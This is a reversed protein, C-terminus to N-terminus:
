QDEILLRANVTPSGASSLPFRAGMEGQSPVEIEVSLTRDLLQEADLRFDINVLVSGPTSSRITFTRGALVNGSVNEFSMAERELATDQYAIGLDLSEASSTKFPELGNLPAPGDLWTQDGTVTSKFGKLTTAGVAEQWRWWLRDLNCHFLWFHPDFAAVEQRAMTSGISSHGGDHAQISFKQYGGTNYAGWMSQTKSTAIDAAVGFGALLEQFEAEDYHSTAYPFYKGPRPPKATAGPDKPLVYSDFPAELMWDPRPSLVDWYPLTVAGCGPISRLADEFMKLFVRHWPNYQDIHHACWAEPLGHLGALAYYSDAESPDKAMLGLYATKLTDVEDATLDSQELIGMTTRGTGIM